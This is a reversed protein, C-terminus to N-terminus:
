ASAKEKKLTEDLLKVLERWHREAAAENYVPMDPPAYGHKAGPYITVENRVGAATLADRLKDAQEPPFGADEDAGAIYVKAKIKPALLHPSDSADTALRGGHFGAAAVVRDPYNGAARLALSAGMCYGTVGVKDAKAHPQKALWDLFAGTDRTSREPDTSGMLKGFVERRKEDSAMASKLDIPAYPGARWFMDPLLVFYGHSALRECMQFLAPRIAPADMYFIVAPWPGQGQPTFTYARAEGDPTPIRVETQTM